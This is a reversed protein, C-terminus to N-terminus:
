RDRELARREEGEPGRWFSERQDKGKTSLLENPSKKEEGEGRITFNDLSSEGEGVTKKRSPLSGWM